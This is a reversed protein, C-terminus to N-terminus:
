AVALTPEHLDITREPIALSEENSCDLEKGFEGYIIGQVEEILSGIAFMWVYQGTLAGTLSEAIDGKELIRHKLFLDRGDTFLIMDHPHELLNPLHVRLYNIGERFRNVPLGERKMRFLWCLLLLDQYSYRKRGRITTKGTCVVLDTRAYYNLLALGIKEDGGTLARLVRQVEIATFEKKIPKVTAM